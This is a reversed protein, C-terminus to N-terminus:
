KENACQAIANHPGSVVDHIYGATSRGRHFWVLMCSQRGFTSGGEAPSQGPAEAVPETGMRGQMRAIVPDDAFLLRYGDPNVPEPVKTTSEAQSESEKLPDM